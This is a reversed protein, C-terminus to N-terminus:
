RFCLSVVDEHHQRSASPGAFHAAIARPCRCLLDPPLRAQTAPDRPLREPRQVTSRTSRVNSLSCSVRRGISRAVVSDTICQLLRLARLFHARADSAGELQIKLARYGHTAEKTGSLAKNSCAFTARHHRHLIQALHTLHLPHFAGLTLAGRRKM